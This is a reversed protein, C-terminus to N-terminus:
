GEARRESLLGQATVSSTGFPLARISHSDIEPVYETTVRFTLAHTPDAWSSKFSAIARLERGDWMKGMLLNSRAVGTLGKSGGVRKFPDTSKDKNIHAILLVILNNRQALMQLPALATRISNDNNTDEVDVHALVPDIVILRTGTRKVEAELERIDNPFSVIGEFGDIARRVFHCRDVDAGAAILRPKIEVGPDGETTIYMVDGDYDVGTILAALYCAFTSKNTGQEGALLTIAKFPVYGELGKVWEPPVAEISSFRELVLGNAKKAPDLRELTELTESAALHDSVDKGVKAQCGVVNPVGATQLTAVLKEARKIGAGDRDAVVIITRLGKLVDTYEDKWSQAGGVNTTAVEGLARLAEVDKEGEVLWVRKGQEIAYLVEPLRYLVRRVDGLKYVWGGEGDPRRQSFSKPKYRVVQYLLESDEDVYDYTTEITRTQRREEREPFLDKLDIGLAPCIETETDCGKHCRLLIEGNRGEDVKLGPTRDGRPHNAGVPCSAIWGDGAKKVRDLRDLLETVRM